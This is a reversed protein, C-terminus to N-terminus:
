DDRPRGPSSVVRHIPGNEAPKLQVTESHMATEGDRIGILSRISYSRGEVGTVVFSGNRDAAGLDVNSEVFEADKLEVFAGM